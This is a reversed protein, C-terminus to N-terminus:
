SLEQYSIDFETQVVWLSLDSADDIEILFEQDRRFLCSRIAYRADSGRYGILGDTRDESSPDDGGYCIADRLAWAETLSKALSRVHLEGEFLPTMGALDNEGQTDPLAIVIAPFPDSQNLMGPRISYAEEANTIKPNSGVLDTVASWGVLLTRISDHIM